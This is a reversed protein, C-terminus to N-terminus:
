PAQTSLQRPHAERLDRLAQCLAKGTGDLAIKKLLATIKFM